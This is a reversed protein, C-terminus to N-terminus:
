NLKKNRALVSACSEIPIVNERKFKNRSEKFPLCGEDVVGETSGVLHVNAHAPDSASYGPSPSPVELQM